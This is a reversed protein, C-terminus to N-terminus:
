IKGYEDLVVGGFLGVIEGLMFVMKFFNYEKIVVDIM